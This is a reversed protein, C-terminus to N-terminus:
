WNILAMRFPQPLMYERSQVRDNETIKLYSTESLAMTAHWINKHLCIPKDLLFSEGEEPGDEQSVIILSIGTLPEFSERTNPHLGLKSVSKYTVKSIAIRWGGAEPETLIVQFPETSNELPEIIDGYPRFAEGTLNRITVTIEDGVKM